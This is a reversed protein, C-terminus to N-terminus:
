KNYINRKVNVGIAEEISSYGDKKLLDILEYKIESILSPGKYILGTYIEILSAGSKIKEYADKANFIGGVGILPIKGETLIYMDKLTNTSLEFIPLGSLGGEENILDKSSQLTNPRTITTNSIIIGEIINTELILKAIIEKESYSLDPSIKLLIPPFNNVNDNQIIFDRNKKLEMLFNLLIDKQKEINRLGPTNPSSINIILFDSINIFNKMGIIYDEIFNNSLKNKGINIGLIINKEKIKKQNKLIREKIIKIGDNNFGYRNIIALDEEM